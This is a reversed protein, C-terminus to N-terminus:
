MFDDDGSSASPLFVDDADPPLSAAGTFRSRVCEDLADEYANTDTRCSPSLAPPDTLSQQLPARLMLPGALQALPWLLLPGCQVTSKGGGLIPKAKTV